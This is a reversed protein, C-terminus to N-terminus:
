ERKLDVASMVNEEHLRMVKKEEEEMHDYGLLHMMSHVFLYTLEREETNGYEMAQECARKYCIVVDGLLVSIEEDLSKLEEAVAEASEYQPFSLVDTVRDIDRYERNIQRITTTTKGEGAPTPNIATVLVLKGNPRDKLRELVDPSIKAKYKGYLELEDDSIDLQSAVEVIPKMQAEQAIQVDTKM